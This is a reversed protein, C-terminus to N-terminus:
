FVFQFHMLQITDDKGPISYYMFPDRERLINLDETSLHKIDVQECESTHSFKTPVTIIHAQKMTKQETRKILKHNCIVILIPYTQVVIVLRLTDQM